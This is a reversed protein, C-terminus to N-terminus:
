RGMKAHTIANTMINAPISVSVFIGIACYGVMAGGVTVIEAVYGPAEAAVTSFVTVCIM